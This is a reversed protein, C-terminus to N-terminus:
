STPWVGEQQLRMRIPISYQPSDVPIIRWGPTMKGCHHCRLRLRTPERHLLYDHSCFWTSVKPFRFQVTM